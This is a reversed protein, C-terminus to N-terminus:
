EIETFLLLPIKEKSKYVNSKICLMKYKCMKQTWLKNM